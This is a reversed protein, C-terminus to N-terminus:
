CLSTCVRKRATINLCAVDGAGVALTIPLCISISSGASVLPDRVDYRYKGVVDVAPLLVASVSMHSPAASNKRRM